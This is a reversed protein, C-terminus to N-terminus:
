CSLRRGSNRKRQRDRLDVWPREHIYQKNGFRNKVTLGKEKSVKGSGVPINGQIHYQYRLLLVMCLISENGGRGWGFNGSHM